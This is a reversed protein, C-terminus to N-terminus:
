HGTELDVFVALKKRDAFAHRESTMHYVGIGSIEVRAGIGAIHALVVLAGVARQAGMQREGRCLPRDAGVIGTREVVHLGIGIEVEVFYVFVLTGVVAPCKSGIKMQFESMYGPEVAYLHICRCAILVVAQRAALLHRGLTCRHRRSGHTRAYVVAVVQEPLINGVILAVPTRKRHERLSGGVSFERRPCPAM